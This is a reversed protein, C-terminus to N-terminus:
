FRCSLDVGAKRPELATKFGVKANYLRIAEKAIQKEYISWGAYNLFAVGTLVFMTTAGPGVHTQVKGFQDKPGNAMEVATFLCIPTAILSAIQIATTAQIRAAEKHAEPVSRVAAMLNEGAFGIWNSENCKEKGNIVHCRSYHTTIRGGGGSWTGTGMPGPHFMMPMGAHYVEGYKLYELDPKEEQLRSGMEGPMGSEAVAPADAMGLLARLEQRAFPGNTLVSDKQIAVITRLPVKRSGEPNVIKVTTQNVDAIEGLIEDGNELYVLTSAPAFCALLALSVFFPLFRM